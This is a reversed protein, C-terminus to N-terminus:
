IGTSNIRMVIGASRFYRQHKPVQKSPKLLYIIGLLLRKGLHVKIRWDCLIDQSPPFSFVSPEFQIPPARKHPAIVIVPAATAQPDNDDQNNQEATATIPAAVPAIAATALIIAAALSM